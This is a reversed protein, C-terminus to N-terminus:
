LIVIGEKNIAPQNNTLVPNAYSTKPVGTHNTVVLLYVFLQPWLALQLM